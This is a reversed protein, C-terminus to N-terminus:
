NSLYAYERIMSKIERTELNSLTYEEKEKNWNRGIICYTLINSKRILPSM